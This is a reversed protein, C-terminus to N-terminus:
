LSVKKVQEWIQSFLTPDAAKYDRMKGIMKNMELEMQEKKSSDPDVRVPADPKANIVKNAAVAEAAAAVQRRQYEYQNFVQSPDVTSPIQIDNHTTPQVRASGKSIPASQVHVHGNMVPEYSSSPHNPQRNDTQQESPRGYYQPPVPMAPPRETAHGQPEHSNAVGCQSNVPGSSSQAWPSISDQPTHTQSHGSLHTVGQTQGNLKPSRISSYQVSKPSSGSRYSNSRWHSASTPRSSQQNQQSPRRNEDGSLHSTQTGIVQRSNANSLRSISVNVNPTGSTSPYNTRPAVNSQPAGSGGQNGAKVAGGSDSRRRDYTNMNIGGTENTPSGTYNERDQSRNYNTMHQMSSNARAMAQERSGHGLSSAYALSGLATTNVSAYPHSHGEGKTEARGNNVASMDGYGQTKYGNSMRDISPYPPVYTQGQTTQNTSVAPYNQRQYSGIIPDSYPQHARADQGTGQQFYPSYNYNNYSM